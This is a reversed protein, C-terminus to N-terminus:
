IPAFQGRFSPHDSGILTETEPVDFVAPLWGLRRLRDGFHSYMWPGAGWDATDATGLRFERVQSLAGGFANDGQTLHNHARRACRM